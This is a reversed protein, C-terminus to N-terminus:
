TGEVTTSNEFRDDTYTKANKVNVAYVSSWNFSRWGNKEVDFVKILDDGVKWAEGETKPLKDTPILEEALTCLMIRETGDSKTFTIEVNYDPNHLYKIAKRQIDGDNLPYHPPPEKKLGTKILLRNAEEKFAWKLLDLAM